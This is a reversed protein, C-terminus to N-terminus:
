AGQKLPDDLNFDVGRFVGRYVDTLQPYAAVISNLYDQFKVSAQARNAIARNTSGPQSKRYEEYGDYAKVMGTLPAVMRKDPIDGHKLAARLDGMRGEAALHNDVGSTETHKAFLPHKAKFDANWADRRATFGKVAADDGEAKAADIEKDFADRTPYYTASDSAVRVGEYFEKPTKRQRLHMELQLRYAAQSYPDGKSQEPIFYAAISQYKKIFGANNNMWGVAAATAPMVAKSTTSQSMPQTFVSFLKASKITGDGNFTFEDPHLATWIANARAIDGGTDNILRKYEDKLGHSGQVAYAYDSKTDKNEFEPVGIRAPSFMGLTARQVLQSIAGSEVRRYFDDLESDSAGEPPVQGSAYLTYLAGVTSSAILSQRDDHGLADYYSHLVTPLLTAIAGQGQGGSGNLRRDIDDFLAREHPFWSAIQRGAISVMPTTSYQFPNTSGPIVSTINGTFDSVPFNVMGKMGPFHSMAHYLVEQAVGSGPFHFMWQGNEDKDVLGSHIAGEGALMMRRAAAPNRYFTTAWRRMMVTTARSFAFFGRGVIDMQMKLAPDDMMRAVRQWAAQDAYSAVLKSASEESLGGAIFEAKMPRLDKIVHLYAAGHMPATAHRQIQREVLLQYMRGGWDLLSNIWGRKTGDVVPDFKPALVHEPRDMGKVKTNIWDQDPAKGHSTIYDLIKTNVRGNRGTVLGTFETTIRDAWQERGLAQEAETVAEQQKGEATWFVRGFGTTDMLRKTGPSELAAMVDEPGHKGPERARKVLANALARNNNVRLALADAYKGAGEIGDVAESLEYGVRRKLEPSWGSSPDYTVKRAGLGHAAAEQVDTLGAPDLQMATHASSQQLMRDPLVHDIYYRADAFTEDDIKATLAHRYFRGVGSIWHLGALKEVAKSRGAFGTLGGMERLMAKTQLANVFMHDAGSGSNLWAEIIARQATVPRILAGIKWLGVATAMKTGGLVNGMTAEFLGAKASSVHMQGFNPLTFHTQVQNPYAATPIGNRDLIEAGDTMYKEDEAKWATLVKRGSTTRTMGSAHALSEKLGQVIEKRASGDSLAWRVGLSAASGSSLYTRALKMVVGASAASTLEIKTDSPLQNTFRSATLRARAAVAAPTFAGPAIIVNGHGKITPQWGKGPTAKGYTRTNFGVDGVGTDTIYIGPERSPLAVHDEVARQASQLDRYTSNARVRSAAAQNSTRNVDSQIQARAGRSLSGAETGGFRRKATDAASAEAVGWQKAQAMAVSYAQKAAIVKGSLVDIANDAAPLVEVITGAKLQDAMRVPDAAWKVFEDAAKLDRNFSRGASWASLGGRIKMYGRSSLAGPMYSTEIPAAGHQLRLLAGKDLIYNVFKEYTDLHEGRGTAFLEDGPKLKAVEEDTFHRLIQSEGMQDSLLAAYKNTATLRAMEQDAEFDGATTKLAKAAKIKNGSRVVDDVLGQVKRAQASDSVARDLIIGISRTDGLGAIAVRGLQVGRYASMGVALPDIFISAVTDMSASTATFWNAHKVPDIGVGRTFDNGITARTANVRHVLDAFPKSSIAGLKAAVQDPTLTPDQAIKATYKGPDAAFVEAETVATAGDWGNIGDPNERDFQAAINTTDSHAYGRAKFAQVSFFSTHDYGMRDMLDADAPDVDTLTALPMGAKLPDQSNNISASVDANVYQYGVMAGHALGKLGPGNGGIDPGRTDITGDMVLSTVPNNGLDHLFRGLGKRKKDKKEPTDLPEFKVRGQADVAPKGDSDLVPKFGKAAMAATLKTAADAPTEMVSHFPVGMQTLVDQQDQTLPIRNGQSAAARVSKETDLAGLFQDIGSAQAPTANNMFLAQVLGPQTILNDNGTVMRSLRTVAADEEDSTTKLPDFVPGLATTM